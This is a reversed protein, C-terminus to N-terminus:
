LRSQSQRVTGYPLTFLNSCCSRLVAGCARSNIRISRRLRHHGTQGNNCASTTCRSWRLTFSNQTPLVEYNAPKQPASELTTATSDESIVSSESFAGGKGSQITVAYETSPLLGSARYSCKWVQDFVTCAPPESDRLNWVDKPIDCDDWEDDQGTPLEWEM